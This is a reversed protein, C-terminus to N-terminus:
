KRKKGEKGKARKKSRQARRLSELRRERRVARLRRREARRATGTLEPEPREVDDVVAVNSCCSQEFSASDYSHSMETPGALAPM